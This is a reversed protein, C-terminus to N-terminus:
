KIRRQKYIKGWLKRKAALRLFVDCKGIVKKNLVIEITVDQENITKSVPRTIQKNHPM